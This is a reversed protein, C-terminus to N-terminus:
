QYEVLVERGRRTIQPQPADDSGHQVGTRQRVIASRLVVATANASAIEVGRPPPLSEGGASAAALALFLTSVTM